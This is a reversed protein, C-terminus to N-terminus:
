RGQMRKLSRAVVGAVAKSRASASAGEASGYRVKVKYGGVVSATSAVPRGDLFTSFEEPALFLVRALDGASVRKELALRVKKLQESKLSLFVVQDFGAALCKEVNGVEHQVSTTVSIECALRWGDRELAVDVSGRGDLIPQEIVVRYGKAEAWRKVLEQLYIHEPGGRGLPAPPVPSAQAERRVPEPRPLSVVLPEAAPVAPRAPEVVAVTEPRIPEHTTRRRGYREGSLSRLAERRERATDLDLPPLGRTELNFDWAARDMRCVAEGVGLNVLEAATFFSFGRELKRADEEGVRFCIRTGANALLAGAVDPARAELQRLEQHALTLGLRYKRVGSLLGAMSATALLQCEDIVLHFMRRAGPQLDQRSLAAQHFASVVLSGLLAANEEGIAGQSLKGLFIKGEDIMQRFNLRGEREAVVARVLKSRLFTDLRTLIPAQPKGSLLPFEREWYFRVEEDAVTALLQRRFVPDVLFQRLEVLTGGRPSELFAQVANALVATMQDGWSTSLRRFVAVLDSTLLHKELETGAALMNWGVVYEEDAPDFLIVDAEREAPIRGLIEDILDGHPDLVGVGEGQAIDQLILNVLLTSKGTGSGGVVHLHRSRLESPLYVPVAHGRHRNDGLIVGGGSLAVQPPAKSRGGERRFEPLRVSPAPLHVLSLLEGSSLLMGTRHTERRLLDRELDVSGSAALPVFENGASDGFRAVGSGLAGLVEWVREPSRSMAAVRVVVAYLPRGVKERGRATIEPADAFFPAGAKTVVARHVSEAWPHVVPEFLVQLLGVEGTGLGSLAGFCALLPDPDFRSATGIPLMWERALGFEVIASDGGADEWVSSLGRAAATIVVEPFFAQLQNEVLTRDPARCVLGVALEDPLGLLEFALPYRCSRLALFWEEMSAASISTGPPLSVQLEVLPAPNDFPEPQLEEEEVAEELRRPPPKRSFLRKLFAPQQGDDIRDLYVVHGPFRRFPPELCVPYPAIGWGRGRLEWAYFRETLIEAPTRLEGADM